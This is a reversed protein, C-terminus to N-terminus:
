WLIVIYYALDFPELKLICPMGQVVFFTLSADWPKGKKALDDCPARVSMNLGAGNARNWRTAYGEEFSQDAEHQSQLLEKRVVELEESITKKTTKVVSMECSLWAWAGKELDISAKM